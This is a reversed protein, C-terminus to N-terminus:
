RSSSRFRQLDLHAFQHGGDLLGDDVREGIAADGGFATGAGRADIDAVGLDGGEAQSDPVAAAVV